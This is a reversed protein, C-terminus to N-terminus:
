IRGPGHLPFIHAPVDTYRRYEPHDPKGYTLVGQEWRGNWAAVLLHNRSAGKLLQLPDLQLYPAFLVELNDLLVLSSGSGSIMRQFIRGAEYPHRSRPKERLQESLHLSINLRPVAFSQAVKRLLTTKGRGGPGVLLILRSRQVTTQLQQITEVLQPYVEPYAVPNPM